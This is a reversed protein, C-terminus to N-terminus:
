ALHLIFPPQKLRRKSKIILRAIPIRVETRKYLIFRPSFDAIGQDAPMKKRNQKVILGLFSAM